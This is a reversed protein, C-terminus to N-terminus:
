HFGFRCLIGLKCPKYVLHTDLDIIMDIEFDDGLPLEEFNYVRCFLTTFDEGHSMEIIKKLRERLEKLSCKRGSILRNGFYSDILVLM